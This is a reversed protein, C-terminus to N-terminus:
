RETRLHLLDIIINPTITTTSFRRRYKSDVFYSYQKMVNELMCYKRMVPSIETTPQKSESKDLQQCKKVHNRLSDFTKFIKTCGVYSYICKLEQGDQLLHIKKLHDFTKRIESFKESCVFCQFRNM